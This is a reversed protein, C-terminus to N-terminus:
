KGKKAQKKNNSYRVTESDLIVQGADLQQLIICHTLSDFAEDREDIVNIRLIGMTKEEPKQNLAIMKDVHANIRVDGGVDTQGLSEKELSKKEGTQSANVICAHKEDGLGKLTKWTDDIRGREDLRSDEPAFLQAYDFIFIDGFFNEYYELSEIEQKVRRVNATGSPFSRFRFNDGYMKKLAILYPMTNQYAMKERYISTQWTTCKYLHKNGFRCVDCPIYSSQASYEQRIDNVYIGVKSKRQPLKCVNEQNDICDFCPYIYEKAEKAFGTLRRYIRNAMKQAGMELSVYVVKKRALIASVAIEQLIWSKGRKMPALVGVLTNREFFGITNGVVGDLKFLRAEENVDTSLANKAFELDFFNIWGDTSAAVKKYSQIEKEADELRDLELLGQITDVSIKLSRKNFYKIAVDLLYEHNLEEGTEYKSSLEILFDNIIEVENSDLSHKEINFIDEIHGLPAVKYKSFYDLCWKSVKRIQPDLFYEPKAVNEVGKLFKDSVIFGTIIQREITNDVVKRRIM